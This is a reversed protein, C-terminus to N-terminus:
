SLGTNLKLVVLSYKLSICKFSSIKNIVNDYYENFNKNVGEAYQKLLSVEDSSIKQIKKNYIKLDEIDYQM